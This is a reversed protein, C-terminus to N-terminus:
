CTFSNQRLFLVLLSNKFPCEEFQASENRNEIKEQWILDISVFPKIKNKYDM